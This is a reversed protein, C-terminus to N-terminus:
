SVFSNVMHSRHPWPERSPQDKSNLIGDISPAPLDPIIILHGLHAALCRGMNRRENIRAKNTPVIKVM